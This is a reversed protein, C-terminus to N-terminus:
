RDSSIELIEKGNNKNFRIWSNCYIDGSKISEQDFWPTPAVVKGEANVALWAGWWSFSSNAMIHHHCKAMLMLDIEPSDLNGSVYVPKGPLPMNERVWDIDDSFIFYQPERVSSNILEVAKGYYEPSCAGMQAAAKPNSVYDGRRVHLMVSDSNAASDAMEQVQASASAALQFDELLIERIDDFYKASQFYGELYLGDGLSHWDPDFRFQLERYRRTRIGARQLWEAPKRQWKPWTALEAPSAIRAAIQFKQLGFERNYTSGYVGTDLLLETGARCALARGAAYQFMQNGLGGKLKVVIM